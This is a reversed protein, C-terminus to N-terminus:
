RGVESLAPSSANGMSNHSYVPAFAKHPCALPQGAARPGAPSHLLHCEQKGQSNNGRTKSLLTLTSPLRPVAPARTEPSAAHALSPKAAPLPDAGCLETNTDQECLLLQTQSRPSTMHALEMRASRSTWDWLWGPGATLGWCPWTM